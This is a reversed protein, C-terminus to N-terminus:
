IAYLRCAFMFGRVPGARSRGTNMVSKVLVGGGMNLAPTGDGTAYTEYSWRGRPGHSRASIRVSVMVRVLATRVQSYSERLEVASSSVWCCRPCFHFVGSWVGSQVFVVHM